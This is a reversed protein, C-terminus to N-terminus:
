PTAAVTKAENVTLDAINLANLADPTCSAADVPLRRATVDSAGEPRYPIVSKIPQKGLGEQANAALSAVGACLALAVARIIWTPSM